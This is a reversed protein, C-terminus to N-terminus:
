KKELIRLREEARTLRLILRMGVQHSKDDWWAPVFSEENKLPEDCIHRWLADLDAETLDDGIFFGENSESPRFADAQRTNKSM